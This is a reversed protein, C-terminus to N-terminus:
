GLKDEIFQLHPKKYFPLINKTLRNPEFEIDSFKNALKNLKQIIKRQNITRRNGNLYAYSYTKASPKSETMLNSSIEGLRDTIGRNEM